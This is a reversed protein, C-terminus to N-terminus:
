GAGAEGQQGAPNVNGCICAPLMPAERILQAERARADRHRADFALIAYDRAAKAHQYARLELKLSLSLATALSAAVVSYSIDQADFISVAPPILISPLLLAHHLVLFVQSCRAHERARRERM